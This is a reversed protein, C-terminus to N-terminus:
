NSVLVGLDHGGGKVVEGFEAHECGAVVVGDVDFIIAKINNKLIM